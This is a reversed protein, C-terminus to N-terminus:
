TQIPELPKHFAALLDPHIKKWCDDCIIHDDEQPEGFYERYEQDAEDADTTAEYTEGCLECTYEDGQNVRNKM